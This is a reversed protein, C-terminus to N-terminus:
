KVTSLSLLATSSRTQPHPPSCHSADGILRSLMHACGANATGVYGGALSHVITHRVRVGRVIRVQTKVHMGIPADSELSVKLCPM